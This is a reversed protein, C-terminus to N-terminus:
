YNSFSTTAAPGAREWSVMEAVMIRSCHVMGHQLAPVDLSESICNTFTYEPTSSRGKKKYYYQVHKFLTNRNM